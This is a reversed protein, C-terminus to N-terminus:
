KRGEMLCKFQQFRVTEDEGVLYRKGFMYVDPKEIVERRDKYQLVFSDQQQYIAILDGGVEAVNIAIDGRDDLYEKWGYELRNIRV